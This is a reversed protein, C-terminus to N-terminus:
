SLLFVKLRDILSNSAWAKYNYFSRDNGWVYPDYDEGIRAFAANASERDGALCAFKCYMNLSTNNAGQLAEKDQFGQKLKPWSVKTDKFFTEEPEHYRIASTAIYFYLMSGEQGGRQAQVEDAFREWDGEEGYWRPLLYHAKNLYFYHYLPEVAVAEDFLRNYRELDWGQGLAVEQMTVYWNPCKIPSTKAENLVEEAQKLREHFLKWGEDTVTDAYGGGRAKWAYTTYAQALAVRATISAPRETIWQQLKKMITAWEAESAHRGKELDAIGQYYKDLKWIGGPFQARTARLENAINDLEEFRGALLKLRMEQAYDRIMRADTHAIRLIDKDPNRIIWGTRLFLFVSLFFVVSFILFKFRWLRAWLTPRDSQKKDM